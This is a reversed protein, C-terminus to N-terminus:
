AADEERTHMLGSTAVCVDEDGVTLTVSLTIMDVNGRNRVKEIRATARVEDGERLPRIVALDQDTHVIRRLALGLEADAFVPEWAQAAIVMAFTPPAIAPDQGYSDHADMIAASFEQIKARSVRYPEPAAWTRGVHEPTIPM